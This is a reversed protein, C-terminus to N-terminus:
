VVAIINSPEQVKIRTAVGPRTTPGLDFRAILPNPNKDVFISISDVGPLAADIQVPVYAGSEIVDRVDIRVSPSAEIVDTGFSERLADELRSAEFAADNRAFARLPGLLLAAGAALVQLLSRRRM